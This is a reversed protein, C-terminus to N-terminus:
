EEDDLVGGRVELDSQNPKRRRARTAKKKASLAAERMNVMGTRHRDGIRMDLEKSCHWINSYYKKYTSDLLKAKLKARTAARVLKRVQPSSIAKDERVNAPGESETKIKAKVAKVEDEIGDAIAYQVLAQQHVFTSFENMEGYLRRVDDDSVRTIDVPMRPVYINGDALRIPETIPVGLRSVERLARSVIHKKIEKVTSLEKSLDQTDVKPM